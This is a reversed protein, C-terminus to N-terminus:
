LGRHVSLLPLVVVTKGRWYGIVGRQVMRRETERNIESGHEKIFRNAATQTAFAIFDDPHRFVDDRLSEFAQGSDDTDEVQVLSRPPTRWATSITANAAFSSMLMLVLPLGIQPRTIQMEGMSRLREISCWGRFADSGTGDSKRSWGKAQADKRRTAATKNKGM